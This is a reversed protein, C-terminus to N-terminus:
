KSLGQLSAVILYLLSETESRRVLSQTSQKIQHGLYKPGTNNKLQNVEWAFRSRRNMWAVTTDEGLARACWKEYSYFTLSKKYITHVTGHRERRNHPNHIGVITPQDLSTLLSPNYFHQLPFVQGVLRGNIHSHYRPCLSV